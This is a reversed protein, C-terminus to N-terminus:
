QTDIIYEFKYNNNFDRFAITYDTGEESDKFGEYLSLKTVSSRYNIEMRGVLFNVGAFKPINFINLPSIIQLGNSIGLVNGEVYTRPKRRDFLREYTIIDGLRRQEGSIGRRWVSTRDNFIGNASTSKLLTGGINNSGSDDVFIEKKETNKIDTEQNQLHTHGKIKGSVDSSYIIEVKFDKFWWENYNGAANITGLQIFIQGDNPCEKSTVEVTVWESLDDSSTYTAVYGGTAWSGDNNLRKFSSLKPVLSANDIFDIVCVKNAPGVVSADRRMQYSIKILDGKNIIIKESAICTNDDPFGSGSIVIFRDIERNLYNKVVRIFKVSAINPILASGGSTWTFGNGWGVLNYEDITQLNVGSGTTYSQRLTGLQKLDGNKLVNAPQRYNFTDLVYKYPRTIKTYAGIELPLQTGYGILFNYDFFGIAIQVFDSNYLRLPILNNTYYRLEDFRILQWRGLAQFLTLNFRELISNLVSYCDKFTSQNSDNAFCNFDILVQELFSDTSNNSTEFLNCYVAIELEINTKKLCLKIFDSITKNGIDTSGYLESVTVDKLLGLNDTFSLKIEHAFDVLDESCDDQVLQGAFLINNGGATSFIVIFGDDSESYFSTLPLSGENILNVTLQSGKILGKVEDKDWLHIVPNSACNVRTSGGSYDKKYIEIKFDINKLDNFESFYIIGYAM